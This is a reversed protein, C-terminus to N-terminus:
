CPSSPHHARVSWRGAPTALSARVGPWGPSWAAAALVVGPSHRTVAVSLTFAVVAGLRAVPSHPSSASDPPLARGGRACHGLFQAAGLGAGLEPSGDGCERAVVM